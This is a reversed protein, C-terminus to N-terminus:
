GWFIGTPDRDVEALLPGLDSAPTIDDYMHWRSNRDAWYLMWTRKRRDYRFQAVPVPTWEGPRQFAPRSEFLTVTDGRFRHELRIENRIHPPLRREAYAHLERDVQRRELESFAM